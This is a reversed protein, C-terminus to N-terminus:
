HLPWHSVFEVEVMKLNALPQFLKVYQYTPLDTYVNLLLRFIIDVQPRGVMTFVHENVKKSEKRISHKIFILCVSIIRSITSSWYYYRSLVLVKSATFTYFTIMAFIQWLKFYLWLAIVVGRSVNHNIWIWCRLTIKDMNLYNPSLFKAIVVVCFLTVTNNFAFCFHVEEVQDGKQGRYGPPGDRGQLTSVQNMGHVFQKADSFLLQNNNKSHQGKWGSRRLRREGGSLCCLVFNPGLMGEPSSESITLRKAGQQGQLRTAGTFCLFM